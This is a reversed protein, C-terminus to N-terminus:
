CCCHDMAKFHPLYRHITDGDEGWKEAITANILSNSNIYDIDYFQMKLSITPIDIGAVSDLKAEDAMEDDIEDVEDDDDENKYAHDKRWLYWEWGQIQMKMDTPM